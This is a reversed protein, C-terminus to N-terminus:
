NHNYGLLVGADLLEHAASKGAVSGLWKYLFACAPIVLAFGGISCAALFGIPHEEVFDNFKENAMELKEEM